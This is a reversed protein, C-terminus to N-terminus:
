ALSDHPQSSRSQYGPVVRENVMLTISAPLDMVAPARLAARLRREAREFGSIDQLSSFWFEDVCVFAEALPFPNEHRPISWNQVYRVALSRVEPDALLSRAYAGSWVEKAAAESVDPALQVFRILKVEASSQGDWVTAERTFAAIHRHPNTFCSEDPRIIELYRPESFAQIFSASDDFWLEAAGDAVFVPNLLEPLEPHAYNHVYRRVYRAFEPVSAVLPAHKKWLYEHCADRTMGARREFGIIFKLM